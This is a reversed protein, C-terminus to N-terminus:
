KNHTMEKYFCHNEKMYNFCNGKRNKKSRRNWSHYKYKNVKKEPSLSMYSLYQYFTISLSKMTKKFHHRQKRFWSDWYDHCDTTYHCHTIATQPTLTPIMLSNQFCQVLGSWLCKVHGCECFMYLPSKDYLNPRRIIAKDFSEISM